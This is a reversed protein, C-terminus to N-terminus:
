ILETMGDQNYAEVYRRMEPTPYALYMARVLLSGPDVTEYTMDLAEPGRGPTNGGAGDTLPTAPNGPAFANQVTYKPATTQQSTASGTTGTDVAQALQTNTNRENYTGGAANEIRAERQIKQTRQVLNKDTRNSMRGPLSPKENVAM